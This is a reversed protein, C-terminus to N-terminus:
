RHIRVRADGEIAIASPRPDTRTEQKARYMEKDARELISAASDSGVGRVTVIGVSLSLHPLTEEGHRIPESSTMRCVAEFLNEAAAADKAPLLTVVEDGGRRYAEGQNQVASAIADFYARLAADGAAHSFTDNIAKMGNMDSFVISLPADASALYIAMQLDNDIHRGDILVGMPERIRGIKLQQSLESLRVRGRHTITLRVEQGSFLEYLIRTRAMDSEGSTLADKVLDNVYRSDILYAVLDRRYTRERSPPENFSPVRALESLLKFEELRADGFNTAMHRITDFTSAM